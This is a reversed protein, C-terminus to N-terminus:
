LVNVLTLLKFLLNFLGCHHEPGDAKSVNCRSGVVPSGPSPQVVPPDMHGDEPVSGLGM